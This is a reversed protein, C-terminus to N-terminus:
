VHLGKKRSITRGPLSPDSGREFFFRFESDASETPRRIGKKRTVALGPHELSDRLQSAYRSGRCQLTNSVPDVRLERFCLSPITCPYFTCRCNLHDVGVHKMEGKEIGMPMRMFPCYAHTEDDVLLCLHRSEDASMAPLLSPLLNTPNSKMLDQVSTFLSLCRGGFGAQGTEVMFRGNSM